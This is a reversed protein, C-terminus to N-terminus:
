VKGDAKLTKKTEDRIQELSRSSHGSAVGETVLKQLQAFELENDQDKRILHRVYESDSTFRGSAIRAKIWAEQQGTIAITKRTVAM